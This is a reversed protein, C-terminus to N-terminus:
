TFVLSRVPLDDPRGSITPEFADSPRDTFARDARIVVTLQLQPAPRRPELLHTERQLVAPVQGAAQLAELERRPWLLDGTDHSTTESLRSPVIGATRVRGARLRDTEKENPPLRM